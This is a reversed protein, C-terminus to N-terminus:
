AVHTQQTQVMAAVLQETQATSRAANTVGDGDCDGTSTTIQSVSAM